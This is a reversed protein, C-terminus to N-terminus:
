SAFTLDGYTALVPQSFVWSGSPTRAPNYFVMASPLIDHGALVQQAATLDSAIPQTKYIWGNSVSTFQAHGNIQQFIVSKVTSGYYPNQMRNWVVAGVALKASMPQNSAEASIIRELWYLNNQATVSTTGSSVVAPTAAPLHLVSGPQLNTPNIQSNAAQLASWSVHLKKAILWETDGAAVTYLQSGSTSSPTPLFISQGVQLNNIQINTNVSRLATLSIHERQSIYWLTDGPKVTYMNSAAFAAGSVFCSLTGVAAVTTAFKLAWKNLKTRM